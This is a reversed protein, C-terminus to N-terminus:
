QVLARDQELAADALVRVLVHGPDDVDDQWGQLACGADLEQDIALDHVAVGDPALGSGHALEDAGVPLRGPWAPRGAARQLQAPRYGLRRRTLAVDDLDTVVGAGGPLRDRNSEWFRRYRQRGVVQLAILDDNPDESRGPGTRCHHAGVCDRHPLRLEPCAM